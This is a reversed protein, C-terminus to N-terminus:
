HVKLTVKLTYLDAVLSHLEFLEVGKSTKTLMIM